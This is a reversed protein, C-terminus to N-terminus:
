GNKKSDDKVYFRELNVGGRLEEDLLQLRSELLTIRRKLAPIQNEEEAARLPRPVRPYGLHRNLASFLFAPDRYRSAWAIRGEREGFLVAYNGEEEPEPLRKRGSKGSGGKETGDGETILGGTREGSAETGVGNGTETGDEGATGIDEEDWDIGLMGDETAEEKRQRYYDSRVYILSALDIIGIQRRLVM